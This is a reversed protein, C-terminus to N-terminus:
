MFAEVFKEVDYPTRENDPTHEQLHQFLLHPKHIAFPINEFAELQGHDFRSQTWVKLLQVHFYSDDLCLDEMSFLESVERRPMPYDDSNAFYVFFVDENEQAPSTNFHREAIARMNTVNRVSVGGNGTLYERPIQRSDHVYPWLQPDRKELPQFIANNSCWPAGM